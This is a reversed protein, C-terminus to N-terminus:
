RKLLELIRDRILEAQRDYVIMWGDSGTIGDRQNERKVTEGLADRRRLWDLQEKRLADKRDATLGRRLRVYVVNLLSDMTAYYGTACDLMRVGSDLCAQHRSAIRELSAPTVSQARTVAPWQCCLAMAIVTLYRLSRRRM